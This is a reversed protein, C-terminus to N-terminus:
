AASDIVDGEASHGRVVAIPTLTTAAPQPAGPQATQLEDAHAPIGRAGSVTRLLDVASLLGILVVAVALLPM